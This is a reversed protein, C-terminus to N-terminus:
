QSLFILSLFLSCLAVPLEDLSLPRQPNSCRPSPFFINLSHKYDIRVATLTPLPRHSGAGAAKWAATLGAPRLSPQPTSCGGSGPGAMEASSNATVCGRGM